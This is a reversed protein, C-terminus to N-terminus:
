DLATLLTDRNAIMGDTEDVINHTNFRQWPLALSVGLDLSHAFGQDQDQTLVISRPRLPTLRPRAALSM